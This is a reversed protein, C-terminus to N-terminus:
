KRVATAFDTWGRWGESVERRGWRLPEVWSRPIQHLRKSYDDHMAAYAVALPAVVVVVLTVALTAGLTLLTLIVGLAALLLSVPSRVIAVFIKQIRGGQEPNREREPM